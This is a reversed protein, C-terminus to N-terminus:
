KIGQKEWPGQEVSDTNCPPSMYQFAMHNEIKKQKQKNIQKLLRKNQKPHQKNKEENEGNGIRNIYQWRLKDNEKEM